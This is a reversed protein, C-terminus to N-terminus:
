NLVELLDSIIPNSYYESFNNYKVYNLIECKKAKSVLKITQLTEIKTTFTFSSDESEYVLWEERRQSKWVKRM